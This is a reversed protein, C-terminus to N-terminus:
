LLLGTQNSQIAYHGERSKRGEALVSALLACFGMLQFAFHAVHSYEWQNRTAAWNHPIAGAAWRATEANMPAIFLLWVGFFALSVCAFGIGTLLFAPKRHRVLYVLIATSIIAGLEVLIGPWGGFQRYLTHQLTMYLEAPYQMKAPMELTLCFALGMALASLLLAAFRSTKLIV